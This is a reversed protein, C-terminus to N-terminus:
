LLPKVLAVAKLEDSRKLLHARQGDFILLLDASGAVIDGVFQGQEGADIEVCRKHVSDVSPRDKCEVFQDIKKGALYRGYHQALGIFSVMSVALLIWLVVAPFVIAAYMVSRAFALDFKEPPKGAASRKAHEARIRWLFFKRWRIVIRDLFLTSIKLAAYLIAIAVLAVASLVLATVGIGFVHNWTYISLEVIIFFARLEIAVYDQPMADMSYGFGSLYGNFYFYGVVYLFIAVIAALAAHHSLLWGMKPRFFGLDESAEKISSTSM